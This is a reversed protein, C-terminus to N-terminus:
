ANNLRFTVTRTPVARLREKFFIHKKLSRSAIRQRIFAIGQRTFGDRKDWSSGPQGRIRTESWTGGIATVLIIQYSSTLLSPPPPPAPPGVLLFTEFTICLILIVCTFFTQKFKKKKKQLKEIVHHATKKRNDGWFWGVLIKSATFLFLYTFLEHFCAIFMKKLIEKVM